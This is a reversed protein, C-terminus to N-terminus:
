PSNAYHLATVYEPASSEKHTYKEIIKLKFGLNNFGNMTISKLWTSIM